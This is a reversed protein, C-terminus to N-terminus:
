LVVTRVCSTGGIVNCYEYVRRTGDDEIISHDHLIGHRIHTEKDGHQCNARMLKTKRDGTSPLKGCLQKKRGDIQRAPYGGFVNGGAARSQILIKM